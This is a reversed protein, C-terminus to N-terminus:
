LAVAGDATCVFHMCEPHDQMFLTVGGRFLPAHDIDDNMRWRAVARVPLVVGCGATAMDSDLRVLVPATPRTIPRTPSKSESGGSIAAACRTSCQFKNPVNSTDIVQYEDGDRSNGCETHTKTKSGCIVATPAAIALERRSNYAASSAEDGGRVTM